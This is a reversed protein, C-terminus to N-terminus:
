EPLLLFVVGGVPSDGRLFKLGALTILAIIILSTLIAVIIVKKEKDKDYGDEYEAQRRKSPVYEQEYDDDKSIKMKNNKEIEKLQRKSYKIEKM